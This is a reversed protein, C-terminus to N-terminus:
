HGKLGSVKRGQREAPKGKDVPGSYYTRVYCAPLKNQSGRECSSALTVRQALPLVVLERREPPPKLILDQMRRATDQVLARQAMGGLRCCHPRVRM